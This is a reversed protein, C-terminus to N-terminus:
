DKLHPYSGLNWARQMMGKLVRLLGLWEEAHVLDVYPETSMADGDIAGSALCYEMARVHLSSPHVISPDQKVLALAAIVGIVGWDSVDSVVLVDAPTAAAVGGHCPCGCDRAQPLFHPLDDQIVGMGIENGGDGFAISPVGNEKGIRILYDLDATVDTINRGSLGHYEGKKNMGPREIAFLLKPKTTKILQDSAKHAEQHNKSVTKVFVPRIGELHPVVWSDPLPLPAMGGGRCAGAICDFWGDDTVIVSCVGLGVYLARSLMVAGVIGDTEPGGGTMPFGTIIIAPGGSNECTEQILEAASLCMLGKQYKQRAKLLPGILGRCTLDVTMLGDIARALNEYQKSGVPIM